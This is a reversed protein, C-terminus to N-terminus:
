IQNVKRFARTKTCYDLYKLQLVTHDITGILNVTGMNDMMFSDGERTDHEAYQM